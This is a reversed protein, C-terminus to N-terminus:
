RVNDAVNVIIEKLRNAYENLRFRKVLGRLETTFALHSPSQLELEALKELIGKIYGISGLELLATLDEVSPIAEPASSISVPLAPSAIWELRLQLKIKTLLELLLVPKVIFGDHCPFGAHGAPIDFANASVIIIPLTTNGRDRIARSVAWGDMVPMAIDLLVLDPRQSDIEAMCAAGSDAEIIDFGMPTLMEALIKRQAAQDDVILIRRRMGAYGSMQDELKLRPRPAHVEPLYLHLTFISGSGLQSKVSLDGGMIQTLMNSITLGLGTGIDNRLNASASREFPLFIREADKESIGIGTDEIEFHAMERVYRLRLMVSGADTFKVANALLNILIQRLRKHDARVVEPVRGVPIFQFTLGKETALPAFMRVIQELFDGLPLEDSELRMKGAEIKAIDLLGDILSLLHNGSRHIVDIADKRGAPIGPDFQLIQAYGLISNLPTRLEHSMGTVFRSKALNASEASEKARQLEADTQKHAEIEQMLLNTQRDSEGQAVRRSDNTLVLWWAGVGTLLLLTCFLKIFISRLVEPGYPALYTPLEAFATIEQYYLLWLLLALGTALLALVILYHGVRTHLKLAFRQPLLNRLLDMIQDPLRSSVKCRDNCRVDLSCCLSCIAGQYAPCHAMDESEFHNECIVCRLPEHSSQHVTDSRAIYYRGGTALAILPAITFASGLAIFPALAQAIHGMFGSLAIASLLSAALMSGVGVPNIDYLHARKFEIHAPSLGLPKNIVLDAVVAGIWSIAVLSYLGLVHDLAKFVGLEMLFVAILVNFVLWVVRGPHSHTLRAFFNSWALSGAYANTVNIKIQSVVVFLTAAALIWAPNSFVYSFGVLYMQAPEVVKAFPVEHQIALFTLLAGGLMKAAGLFIWGPGALLLASWWRIRNAPTKEPLFRLFDVQEGIQAILSFAVTAAAGFLPLNFSGGAESHGTFSLMSTLATPEKYLVCAYPLVLLVIWIPQTWLQLRSIWTIGYTVLPIIVISCVIYGLALPLNFYLEVAQAMISAELAFFIFTFSAYILSTITSGIYGFGAGRTLLDMDVGYKAAYYSIPLGTLFILVSVCLIAWFANSFGYSLTIAGGIAELALFSVAGMATNALSFESWKRFARPTFRLAYDELTENAVWTNYDRRIKIIRQPAAAIVIKELPHCAAAIPPRTIM